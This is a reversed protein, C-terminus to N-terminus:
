STFNKKISKVRRNVTRPSMYMIQSIREITKGSLKLDLIILEDDTFCCNEKFYNVESKTFELKM